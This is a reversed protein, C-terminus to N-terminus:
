VHRWIRRKKIRHATTTSVNFAEAIAAITRNDERIAMVDGATLKSQPHLEGRLVAGPKNKSWHADGRSSVHRGKADRDRNNDAKTGLWLHSPNCCKRNDCTHCVCMGGPIPGIFHEYAVRHAARRKGNVWLSGYGRVIAGVFEICGTEENEKLFKSLRDAMSSSM